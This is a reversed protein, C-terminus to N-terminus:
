ADLRRDHAAIEAPTEFADATRGVRGALVADVGYRGMDDTVRNGQAPTVVDPDPVVVRQRLVLDYGLAGAWAALNDLRPVVDGMEWRCISQQSLDADRSVGSQSRGQRRRILTLDRVVPHVARPTEGGRTDIDALIQEAPVVGTM